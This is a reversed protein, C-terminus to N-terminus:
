GHERSYIKAIRVGTVGGIEVLEGTGLRRGSAYIAVEGAAGIEVPITSGEAIERLEAVTLRTRGVVFDLRVELDEVAIAGEETEVADEDDDADAAEDMAEDGITEITLMGDELDGSGIGAFREGAAIELLDEPDTGLAVVAGPALADLEAVSLRQRGALVHIRVPVLPAITREPDPSRAALAAELRESCAADLMLAVPCAGATQDAPALALTLMGEPQVSVLDGLGSEGGLLRGAASCVPALAHEALARALARPLAELPMRAMGEPLQALIWDETAAILMRGPTGTAAFCVMEQASGLDTHIVLGPGDGEAGLVPRRSAILNALALPLAHGPDQPAINM